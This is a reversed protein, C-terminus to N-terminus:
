SMLDFGGSRGVGPLLPAGASRTGPAAPFASPRIRGDNWPDHERDCRHPAAAGGLIKDCPPKRAVRMEAPRAVWGEAFDDEGESEQDSDFCSEDRAAMEQDGGGRAPESHCESHCLTQSTCSTPAPCSTPVPLFHGVRRLTRDNRVRAFGPHPVQKEGESNMMGM